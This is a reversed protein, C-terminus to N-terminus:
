LFLFCGVCKVPTCHKSGNLTHAARYFIIETLITQMKNTSTEVSHLVYQQIYLIQSHKICYQKIWTGLHHDRQLKFCTPVKQTTIDCSCKLFFKTCKIPWREFQNDVTCPIFPMFKFQSVNYGSMLNTPSVHMCYNKHQHFTFKVFNILLQVPKVEFM